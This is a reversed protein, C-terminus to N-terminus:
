DIFGKVKLTESACLLKTGDDLFVQVKENVLKESHYTRGSKGDKTEVICGSGRKMKLPPFNQLRKCDM